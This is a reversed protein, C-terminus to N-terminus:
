LSILTRKSPYCAARWRVAKTGTKVLDHVTEGGGFVDEYDAGDFVFDPNLTDDNSNKPNKTSKVSPVSPADENDSDITM